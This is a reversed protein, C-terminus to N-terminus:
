RLDHRRTSPTFDNQDHRERPRRGCPRSTRNVTGNRNPLLKWRLGESWRRGMVGPFLGRYPIEFIGRAHAHDSALFPDIADRSFAVCAISRGTDDSESATLEGLRRSHVPVSRRDADLSWASCCEPVPNRSHVPRGPRGPHSEPQFSVRSLLRDANRGVGILLSQQRKAVNGPLAGDSGRADRSLGQQLACHLRHM